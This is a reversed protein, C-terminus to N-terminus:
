RAREIGELLEDTTKVGSESWQVYGAGDIAVALPYQSLGYQEALEVNRDLGITWNGDHEAWWDALEAPSISAAQGDGVSENTVSVFRVEDGVEEHAEALAPMQEVCPPCWTGFFDIFTPQSPVPIEITGAESGRADVTEIERREAPEEDDSLRAELADGGGLAVAAGGGLVGISALAAILERREM